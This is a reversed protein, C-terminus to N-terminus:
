DEGLETTLRSINRDAMALKEQYAERDEATLPTEEVGYGPSGPKHVHKVGSDIIEQIRGRIKKLEALQKKGSKKKAM